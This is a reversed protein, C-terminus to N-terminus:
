RGGHLYYVVPYRKESNKKVDYGPPLYICYGVDVKMSLSTFTGHKVGDPLGTKPLPNVWRFPAPPKKAPKKDDKAKQAFATSSAFLVALVLCVTSKM